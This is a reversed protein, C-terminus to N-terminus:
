PRKMLPSAAIAHLLARAGHGSSRTAELISDITKRDAYSVDAGTAYRSMQVVFARALRDQDAALLQKLDDIGAFTRGDALEGATDVPPGLRYHPKGYPLANRPPPAGAGTSRYRDRFGGIPDFCELAFGAPDIKVHCTACAASSRHLALQERITTAGRTDPDVAPVNPPPPPAPDALLRDLTWVGRKVPSTVTGNATLKLIAAQTLLGGRHSGAPLSVRRVETGEVGPVGYHEALRQTLMAFDADVLNTIPMDNAILERVFARTEAVMGRQLLYSFEPYLQEDPTTEDIRNLELWQDTFDAIFRDSRPDDLLRDIQAHLVAPKSLTGAEAAKLLEADPPSNHLWYSLRTALAHDTADVDASIFLFDPSTLVTVYARRMADEFCDHMRLRELVLAVYPEVEDPDIPRRFARPLFAALLQRADMEPESSQVTELPRAREKPTLHKMPVPLHNFLQVHQTRVPPMAGSDASLPAIPLDGFLRRHSEPPWTDHIPGTVEFWDVAVGPGTYDFVPGGKRQRAKRDLSVPDFELREGADVWAEVEHVRPALSPATLLALPRGNKGARGGAAWLVAAQGAEVPKVEGKDWEFGWTSLRIRHKGTFLPAINFGAWGGEGGLPHGLLGVASESEQVGSAKVDALRQKRRVGNQRRIEDLSGKQPEPKERVLPLQPDIAFDKLLVATGQTMQGFFGGQASPFYRGTFVPPPESRTAIAATLAHEVANAYAEMHVPSLDLNDAVKAFGFTPTDEPLFGSVDLTELALIDRLSNEFEAVTMRRMRARGDRSIRAADAKTLEADLWSTVTTIEQATPRESEPPPMEGTAIRDHIRVFRALTEPVAFDRPLTALDLGAEPKDGSHCDYCHREFFVELPGPAATATVTTMLGALGALLASALRQLSRM